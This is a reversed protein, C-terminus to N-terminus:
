SLLAKIGFWVGAGNLTMIEVIDETILDNIVVKMWIKGIREERAQRSYSQEFYHKCTIKGPLQVM